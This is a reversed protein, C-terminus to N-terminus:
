HHNGRQPEGHYKRFYLLENKMGLGGIIRTEPSWRDGITTPFGTFIVSNCHWYSRAGFIGHFCNQALFSVFLIWGSTCDCANSVCLQLVYVLTHQDLCM